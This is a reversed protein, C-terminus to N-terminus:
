GIREIRATIAALLKPSLVKFRATVPKRVLENMLNKGDSAKPNPEYIFPGSGAPDAPNGRGARRPRYNARMAEPTAWWEDNTVEKRVLSLRGPRKMVYALLAGKETRRDDTSLIGVRVETASVTTVMQLDGSKGTERTVGNSGYWAGHGSARVPEVEAELTDVVAGSAAVVAARVFGKLDGHLITTVPGDQFRLVGGGSGGASFPIV